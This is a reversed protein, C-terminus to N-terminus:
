EYVKPEADLEFEEYEYATGADARTWGKALSVEFGKSCIEEAKDESTVVALPREYVTHFVCYVKMDGEDGGAV